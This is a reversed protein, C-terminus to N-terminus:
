FQVTNDMAVLQVACVKLGEARMCTAAELAALRTEQASLAAAFM